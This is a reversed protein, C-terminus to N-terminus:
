SGSVFTVYLNINTSDTSGILTAIIEEGNAFYGLGYTLPQTIVLPAGQYNIPVFNGLYYVIFMSVTAGGLTGDLVLLAKGNPYTLQVVQSNKDSTENQFLYQPGTM